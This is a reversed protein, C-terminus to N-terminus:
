ERRLVKAFGALPRPLAVGATLQALTLLCVLSSAVTVASALATAPWFPLLLFAGAAVGSLPLFIAMLRLSTSTFAFQCRQRVILYILVSHCVYLGFFAMGAGDPGVWPVLLAALGVHIITASIETAIFIVRWSKALVIFGMPWAIVRLLMGLCMFRLLNAAEIFEASYLIEMALPAFAITAIVGPAALLLSVQTQENVLRNMQEHDEALGTLRPYFDTGMAQLVFGVYVGAIAWGAQYLGAAWVGSDHLVIIRVMYAAGMTLMASILFALGLRLLDGLENRLLFLNSVFTVAAARRGFWWAFGATALATLILAPVIGEEGWMIVLPITAVVSVIAALINLWSLDAIRRRGQVAATEGAAWIRLLVVFGLLAMPLANGTTGFTLVSIPVCLAALCMAGAVGLFMSICRVATVTQAIRQEDNTAAAQAIERVGSQQVGLGAAAVALDAVANYLGMIGMGSPGLLIAVIKVRVLSAALVIASSGGVVATSRLISLYSARESRLGEARDRM